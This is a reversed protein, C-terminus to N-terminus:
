PRRIYLWIPPANMLAIRSEPTNDRLHQLVKGLAGVNDCGLTLSPWRAEIAKKLNALIGCGEAEFSSAPFNCRGILATLCGWWLCCFGSMQIHKTDHVKCCSRGHAAKPEGEGQSSTSRELM